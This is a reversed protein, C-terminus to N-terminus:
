QGGEMGKGVARMEFREWPGRSKLQYGKKKKSIYSYIYIPRHKFLYMCMSVESLRIEIKYIYPKM